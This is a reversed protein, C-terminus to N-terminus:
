NWSQAAEPEDWGPIWRDFAARLEDAAEILLALEEDEGDARLMALAPEGGKFGTKKESTAEAERLIRGAAQFIAMGPEFGEFRIAPWPNMPEHPDRDPGVDDRVLRLFTEGWDGEFRVARDDVYHHAIPKGVGVWIGVEREAPRLDSAHFCERGHAVVLEPHEVEQGVVFRPVFGGAEVFAIVAGTGGGDAWTARCTHVIVLTGDELLRRLVLRAGRLWEGVEADYVGAEHAALTGDLDVAVTRPRM